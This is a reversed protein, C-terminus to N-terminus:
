RGCIHFTFVENTALLFLLKTTNKRVLFELIIPGKSFLVIYNQGEPVFRSSSVIFYIHIVARSPLEGGDDDDDDGRGGGLFFNSISNTTQYNWICDGTSVFFAKHFVPM